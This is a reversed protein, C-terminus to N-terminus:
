EGQLHQTLDLYLAELTDRAASGRGIIVVAQEDPWRETIAAPVAICEGQEIRLAAEEVNVCWYVDKDCASCHRKHPTSPDRAEMEPWTRDCVFSFRVGCNLVGRPPPSSPPDPQDSM